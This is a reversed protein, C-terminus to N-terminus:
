NPSFVISNTEDGDNIEFKVTVDKMLTEDPLNENTSIEHDDKRTELKFM